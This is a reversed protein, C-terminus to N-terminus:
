RLLWSLAEQEDAFIEANFARNKAVTVGIKEPDIIVAPAVMVMKVAGGASAAWRTNMSYREIVTPSPFGALERIDVLLHTVGNARCYRIVSDIRDVAEALTCELRMSLRLYGNEKSTLEPLAGEMSSQLLEPMGVLITLEEL